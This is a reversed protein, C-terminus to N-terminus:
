KSSVSCRKGVISSLLLVADVDSAFTVERFGDVARARFENALQNARHGVPDCVARVEFRDSLARLAPLHRSSWSNGMGILGLRLKM